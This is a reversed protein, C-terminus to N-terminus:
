KNETEKKVDENFRPRNNEIVNNNISAFHAGIIDLKDQLDNIM